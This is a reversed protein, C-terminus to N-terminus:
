LVGWLLEHDWLSVSLVMLGNPKLMRCFEAFQAFFFKGDGQTGCHELVEYAHIEDFEDDAGFTYPLTDLDWVIQPNLADDIDLTILDGDSFDKSHGPLKVRKSHETGAGILLYKKVPDAKLVASM